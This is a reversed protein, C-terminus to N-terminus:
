IRNFTNKEKFKLPIYHRIFTYLLFLNENDSLAIHWTYEDQKGIHKAM